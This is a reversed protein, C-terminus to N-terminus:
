LLLPKNPDRNSPAYDMVALFVSYYIVGHGPSHTGRVGWSWMSPLLFCLHRSGLSWNEGSKEGCRLSQCGGLVTDGAPPRTHCHPVREERGRPQHTGLRGDPSPVNETVWLLDANVAPHQAQLCSLSNTVLQLNLM